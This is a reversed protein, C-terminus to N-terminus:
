KPIVRFGFGSAVDLIIEKGDPVEAAIPARGYTHVKCEMAKPHAKVYSEIAGRASKDVSEDVVMVLVLLKQEPLIPGVPGSKAILFQHPLRERVQAATRQTLEKENVNIPM